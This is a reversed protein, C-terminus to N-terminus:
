SDTPNLNVNTFAKLNETNNFCSVVIDSCCYRTELVDNLAKAVVRPDHRFVGCGIPVLIIVDISKLNAWHVMWEFCNKHWEYTDIKISYPRSFLSIINVKTSRSSKPDFVQVDECYIANVKNHLPWPIKTNCKELYHFLDSNRCIHEEQAQSGNVVGGGINKLSASNVLLTKKGVSQFVDELCDEKTVIVRPKRNAERPELIPTDNFLSHGIFPIKHEFGKKTSEYREKFALRREERNMCVFPTNEM